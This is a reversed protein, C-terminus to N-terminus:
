NKSKYKEKTSIEELLENMEKKFDYPFFDQTKLWQDRFSRLTYMYKIENKLYDWHTRDLINNKCLQYTSYQHNLFMTNIFDIKNYPQFLKLYGPNNLAIQMIERQSSIMDYVAQAESKKLVHDLNKNLIILQQKGQRFLKANYLLIFITILAYALTSGATIYDPLNINQTHSLLHECM